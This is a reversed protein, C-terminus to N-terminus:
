TFQLVGDDIPARRVVKQDVYWNQELRWPAKAGEGPLLHASRQVYGSSLPMFPRREVSPDPVPSAVRRGAQDLHALLRCVYDIVLDAKLTWSANTYGLTFFFNPVESLMLAKYALHSAYDVREGDVVMEIGGLPVQMQFGTASVILDADLETGSALRLGTPTFSEITDTVISAEGNRLSRFLDGNPVFCLRQDWPDYPPAFHRDVDFDPPLQRVAQKRLFAKSRAPWRMSFKYFGISNAINTWRAVRYIVRRPMRMRTLLRAVPDHRPRNIVYSPTRQLMTVHAAAGEGASMSPVLTVATAGSGIVVVQKGSYDLGEPWHQPHVIQGQFDAMGPWTPQFGEDYKYYGACSWLFQATLTVTEGAAPDGVAAVVTWHGAESDWAASQVRHRYRILRDVDYERAVTNIYERILTGDALAIDSDWPRWTYGFTFMDSDSRVGPYRFLDWTGGKADRSELVVVSKGPLRERVQAAAGVGSLGAGVILVDVHEM